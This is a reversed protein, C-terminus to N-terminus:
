QAPKVEGLLIDVIDSNSPYSEINAMTYNNHGSAKMKESWDNYWGADPFVSVRRGKLCELKEKTLGHSSGTSVWIYQPLLAAMVVATKESEVLCVCAQPRLPLLHAGFLCQYLMWGKPLKDKLIQTHAWNQYGDHRHGDEYFQMIHGTHLRQQEDIQWWIVNGREDAGIHYDEYVQQVVMPDLGLQQAAKTSFWQWFTSAPSHTQSVLEMPLPQLPPTPKPKPPVSVRNQTPKEKMWAHDHYYESPKYHYGCSHEHDCKGVEDAIYQCGNQTDVYRVFSKKGCHPCRTKQQRRGTVRPTELKYRYDINM